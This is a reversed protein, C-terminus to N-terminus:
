YNILGLLLALFIAVGTIAVWIYFEELWRGQKEKRLGEILYNFYDDNNYKKM